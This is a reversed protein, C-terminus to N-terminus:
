LAVFWLGRKPGAEVSFLVGPVPAAVIAYSCVDEALVARPAGTVALAKLRGCFRQADSQESEEGLPYAEELLVALPAAFPYQALASGDEIVFGQQAPLPVGRAIVSSEGGVDVLSLTGLAAEVDHYVLWTFTHQKGRRHPVVEHVAEILPEFSRTRRNWTGFRGEPDLGAINQDALVYVFGEQLTPEVTVPANDGITASLVTTEGEYAFDLQVGEQEFSAFVGPAFERYEGTSLQVRQLLEQECPANFELTDRGYRPACGDSALLNPQFDPAVAEYLQGGDVFAIRERDRSAAIETVERGIALLPEGELTLLTLVGGAVAWVAERERGGLERTARLITVEEALVRPTLGRRPDLVLLRQEADRYLLHGGEDDRIVTRVSRADVSGLPGYAECQEDVLWLESSSDDSPVALPIYLAPQGRSGRAPPLPASTPEGVIPVDCRQKLRWRSIAIRPPGEESQRALLAYEGRADLTSLVRVHEASLQEPRPPRAVPDFGCSAGYLAFVALLAARPAARHGARGEGIILRHAL